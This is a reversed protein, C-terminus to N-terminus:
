WGPANNAVHASAIDVTLKVIDAPGVQEPM